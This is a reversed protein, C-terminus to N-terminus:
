VDYSRKLFNPDLDHGDKAEGRRNNLEESVEYPLTLLITLDPKPLDYLGFELNEVHTFFQLRDDDAIKAGQHAMNSAVYRDLILHSGSDLISNMEDKAAYRDLAFLGTSIYADANSAGEPFYSKSIAPKGLYPGGIIKGTPTSYQPFSM